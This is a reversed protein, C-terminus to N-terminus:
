VEVKVVRIMWLIGLILVILAFGGLALSTSNTEGVHRFFDGMRDWFDGHGGKIGCLKPLQTSALHLAVGAKFGILVTESIFSM